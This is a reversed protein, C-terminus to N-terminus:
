KWKKQIKHTEMEERLMEIHKECDKMIATYMARCSEDNADILAQRCHNVAEISSEMAKLLNQNFKEDM